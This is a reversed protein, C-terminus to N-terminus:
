VRVSFWNWHSRALPEQGMSQFNPQLFRCTLSYQKEHDAFYARQVRLQLVGLNPLNGVESPLRGGVSMDELFILASYMTALTLWSYAHTVSKNNIVCRGSFAEWDRDPDYGIDKPGVVLVGRCLSVFSCCIWWWNLDTSSLTHHVIWKRMGTLSGLESPITGSLRTKDLGLLDLNSFNACFFTLVSDQTDCAHLWACNIKCMNTLLGIETPLTGSIDTEWM